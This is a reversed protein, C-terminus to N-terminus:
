NATLPALAQFVCQLTFELDEASPTRRFALLRRDILGRLLDAIMAAALDPDVPRIEGKASAVALVQAIQREGERSLEQIEAGLAKGHLCMNRFETAYIRFFDSHASLFELRTAMYARLKGQWSDAQQMRARSLAEVERARELLAEFYIQEKSTFYLYATGKAIGAAAAIDDVSTDAFGQRAFVERAAKLIASRRNEATDRRRRRGKAVRIVV